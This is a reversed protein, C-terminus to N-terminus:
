KVDRATQEAGAGPADEAVRRSPALLEQLVRNEPGHVPLRCLLPCEYRCAEMATATMLKINYLIRLARGSEKHDEDTLAPACARSSEGTRSCDLAISRRLHTSSLSEPPRAIDTGSSSFILDGPSTRLRLATSSWCSAASIRSRM